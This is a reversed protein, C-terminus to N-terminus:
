RTKPNLAQKLGGGGFFFSFSNLAIIGINGKVPLVHKAKRPTRLCITAEQRLNLAEYYPLTM